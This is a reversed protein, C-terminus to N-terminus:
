EKGVWAFCNIRVMEGLKPAHPCDKKAMCDNCDHLTKLNELYDLMDIIHQAMQEFQEKEM